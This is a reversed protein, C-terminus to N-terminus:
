NEERGYHSCWLRAELPPYVSRVIIRQDCALLDLHLASTSASSILVALELKIKRPVELYAPFCPKMDGHIVDRSSPDQPWSLQFQSEM